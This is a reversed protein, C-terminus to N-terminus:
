TMTVDFVLCPAQFCVRSISFLVGTHSIPLMSSLKM